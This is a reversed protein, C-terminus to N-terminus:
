WIARDPAAEYFIRGFPVADDWPADTASSRDGNSLMVWWNDRKLLELMAGVAPQAIGRAFDLHCMHDLVVPVTVERILETLELIEDGRCFIKVVWGYDRIRDLSHRFSQATPVIGLFKAFNFRAGRVGAEHLRRIEADSVTEDIIAVGRYRDAPARKLTDILLSHDTRYVTAQVIVSRQIGLAAHLREADELGAASCNRRASERRHRCPASDSGRRSSKRAVPPPAEHPARTERVFSPDQM